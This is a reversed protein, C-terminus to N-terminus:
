VTRGTTRALDRAVHDRQEAAAFDLSRAGTSDPYHTARFPKAPAAPATSM